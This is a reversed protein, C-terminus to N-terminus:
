HRSKHHTTSLLTNPDELIFKRPDVVKDYIRIEYHLHAGTTRGTMGVSAIKTGLRVKQGEKVQINKIHGYRSTVGNGHDLIIYNGLGSLKGVCTVLGNAPAYIATNLSAVIDLGEHFTQKHRFPSTRYGFGSSVFGKVPSVTPIAPSITQSLGVASYCITYILAAKKIM